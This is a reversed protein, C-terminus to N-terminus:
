IIGHTEHCIDHCALIRDYCEMLAKLQTEKMNPILRYLLHGMRFLSLGGPKSAGLWRDLNLERRARGLLVLLTHALTALLFLRDRRDVRKM